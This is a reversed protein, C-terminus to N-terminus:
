RRSSPPSLLQCPSIFSHKHTLVPRAGEVAQTRTVDPHAGGRQLAGSERLSVLIDNYKRLLATNNFGKPWAVAQDFQLCCLAGPPDLTPPHASSALAGAHLAGLGGGWGGGGLAAWPM